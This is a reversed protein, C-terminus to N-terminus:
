KKKNNDNNNNNKKKKKSEFTLMEFYFFYSMAEPIATRSYIWTLRGSFKVLAAYLMCKTAGHFEASAQHTTQKQM